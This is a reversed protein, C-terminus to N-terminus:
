ADWEHWIERLFAESYFRERLFTGGDIRYHPLSRLLNEAEEQEMGASSYITKIEEIETNM